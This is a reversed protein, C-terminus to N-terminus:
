LANLKKVVLENDVVLVTVCVVLGLNKSFISFFLTGAVAFGTCFSPLAPEINALMTIGTAM